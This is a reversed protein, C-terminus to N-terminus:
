AAGAKRRPEHEELVQMGTFLCLKVPLGMVHAVAKAHLRLSEIRERDAGMMPLVTGNGGDIAPVGEDGSPETCVWAYLETIKKM